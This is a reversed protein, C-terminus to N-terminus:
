HDILLGYRMVVVAHRMVACLLRRSHCMMGRSSCVMRSSLAAYSTSSCCAVFRASNTGQHGSNTVLRSSKVRARSGGSREARRGYEGIPAAYLEVSAVVADASVDMSKRSPVQLVLSKACLVMSPPYCALRSPRRCWPAAFFQGSAGCSLVLRSSRLLLGLSSRELDDVRRLLRLFSIVMSRPRRVTVRSHRVTRRTAYSWTGGTPEDFRTCPAGSQDAAPGHRLEDPVRRTTHTVPDCSARLPDRSGSWDIAHGVGPQDCSAVMVAAHRMEGEWKVSTMVVWGRRM